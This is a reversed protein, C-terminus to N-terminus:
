QKRKRITVRILRVGVRGEATDNYFLNHTTGLRLRSVLVRIGSTGQRRATRVPFRVSHAENWRSDGTERAPHGIQKALTKSNV